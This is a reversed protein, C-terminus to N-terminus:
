IQRNEELHKKSALFHSLIMVNSVNEGETDEWKKIYIDM